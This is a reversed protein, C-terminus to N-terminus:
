FFGILARRFLRRDHREADVVSTRRAKIGKEMNVYMVMRLTVSLTAGFMVENPAFIMGAPVRTVNESMMVTPCSVHPRM